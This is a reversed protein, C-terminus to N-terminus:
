RRRAGRRGRGSAPRRRRRRRDEDARHGRAPVGAPEGGRGRGGRGHKSAAPKSMTSSSVTPVPWLSTSTAAAASVVTTRSAGSIPSSTWAILAPRSSTASRTTTLLPSRGPRGASRRGAAPSAPATPRGRPRRDPPRGTGLRGSTSTVVADVPSPTGSSSAASSRWRRWARPRAVGLGGAARTGAGLDPRDDHLPQPRRRAAGAIAPSVSPPWRARPRRVLQVGVGRGVAQEGRQAARRFPPAAIVMSRTKTAPAPSMPWPMACTCAAMPLRPSARRAPGRAPRPPGPASRPCGRRPGDRLAPEVGSSRSAISARRM